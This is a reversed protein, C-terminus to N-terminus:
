GHDVVGLDGLPALVRGYTPGTSTGSVLRRRVSLLHAATFALVALLWLPIAAATAFMWGLVVAAIATTQYYQLLRELAQDRCDEAANTNGLGTAYLRVLDHMRWWGFPEGSEILHAQALEELAKRIAREPLGTAAAAAAASIQSGPNVTILRFMRQRVESLNRYSLDFAVRVARQGVEMEALRTQEDELDAAMRALPKNPHAALLAAVIEVALPLGACLRAVRTADDPHDIVRREAEGVREELLRELLEAAAQDTLV